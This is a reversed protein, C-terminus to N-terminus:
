TKSPSLKMEWFSITSFRLLPNKWPLCYFDEHKSSNWWFIVAYVRLSVSWTVDPYALTGFGNRFYDIRTWFVQNKKETFTSIGFKQFILIKQDSIEVANRLLPQFLFILKCFKLTSALYQVTCSTDFKTLHDHLVLNKSKFTWVKTSLFFLQFRVRIPSKCFFFSQM